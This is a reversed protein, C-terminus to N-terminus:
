TRLLYATLFISPFTVGGNQINRTKKLNLSLLRRCFDAFWRYNTDTLLQSRCRHVIRMVGVSRFTTDTSYVAYRLVYM